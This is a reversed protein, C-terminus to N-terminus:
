FFNIHFADDAEQNSRNLAREETWEGLDAKALLDAKITNIRGCRMSQRWPM